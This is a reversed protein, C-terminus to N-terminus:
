HRILFEIKKNKNKKKQLLNRIEIAKDHNANLKLIAITNPSSGTTQTM